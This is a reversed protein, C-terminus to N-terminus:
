VYKMSTRQYQITKLELIAILMARNAERSDDSLQKCMYLSECKCVPLYAPFYLFLETLLAGTGTAHLMNVRYRSIDRSAFLRKVHTHTHTHARYSFKM